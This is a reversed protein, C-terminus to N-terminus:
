GQLPVRAPLLGQSSASAYAGHNSSESQTLGERHGANTDGSSVVGADAILYKAPRGNDPSVSRAIRSTGSLKDPVKVENQTWSPSPSRIGPVTKSENLLM